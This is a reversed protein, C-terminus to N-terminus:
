EDFVVEMTISMDCTVNGATTLTRYVSLQDGPSFTHVGRTFTNASNHVAATNVNFTGMTVQSNKNKYIGFGAVVTSTHATCNILINAGIISGSSIMVVPYDNASQSIGQLASLYGNAYDLNATNNMSHMNILSRHGDAQEFTAVGEANLSDGVVATATVSAVNVEKTGDSLGDQVTTFNENLKAAQVFAATLISNPMTIYTM